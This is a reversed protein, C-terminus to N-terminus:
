LYVYSVESVLYDKIRTRSEVYALDDEDSIGRGTNSIHAEHM